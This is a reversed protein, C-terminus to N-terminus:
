YMMRTEPEEMRCFVFRIKWLLHEVDIITLIFVEYSMAVLDLMSYRGLSEMELGLIPLFASTLETWNIPCAFVMGSFVLEPDLDLM